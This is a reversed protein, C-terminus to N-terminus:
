RVYRISDSYKKADLLVEDLMDGFLPGCCLQNILVEAGSTNYEILVPRERDDVCFDWTMLGFYPLRLHAKSIIDCIETHKSLVRGKFPSGSYDTEFKEGYINLAYDALKGHNDIGITYGKGGSANDVIANPAGVRLFATLIYVKGHFLFSLLKETNVSSANFSALESSQNIRRQVVYNKGIENITRIIDSRQVLQVGRGGGSARSPKVIFEDMEELSTVAQEYPIIEHCSNLFYGNVNVIVTEPFLVDPLYMEMYSKDEWANMKKDNYIRELINHYFSEPVYLPSWKGTVSWIYEHWRTDIKNFGHQAYFQKVDCKQDASLHIISVHSKSEISELERVFYREYRRKFLTNGKDLFFREFSNAM